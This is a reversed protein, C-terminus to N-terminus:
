PNRQLEVVAIALTRKEIRPGRPSTRSPDRSYLRVREGDKCAIVRFGDHKIEHLWQSGSPLKPTKIPPCPAIFGAPFTHQLMCVLYFPAVPPHLKVRTLSRRKQKNQDHVPWETVPRFAMMVLGPGGFEVAAPRPAKLFLDSIRSGARIRMLIQITRMTTIASKAAVRSAIDALFGVCRRRHGSRRPTGATLLSGCCCLFIAMPFILNSPLGGYANGITCPTVARRLCLRLSSGPRLRALSLAM